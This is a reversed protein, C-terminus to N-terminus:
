IAKVKTAGVPPTSLLLAAVQLALGGDNPVVVWTKLLNLITAFNADSKSALAVFDTALIDGLRLEVAALVTAVADAQTTAGIISTSAPIAVADTLDFRRTDKPQNDVAGTSKWEDMSREAFALWVEAGPPLPWTFVTGGGQPFAVPVNSIAPFIYTECAKKETDFFRGRVTPQATITQLVPNYDLVIAPLHTHMKATAKKGALEHLDSESPTRGAESM